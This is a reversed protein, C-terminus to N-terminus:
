KLWDSKLIEHLHPRQTADYALLQKLLTQSEPSLNSEEILFQFSPQSKSTSVKNGKEPSQENNARHQRLTHRWFATCIPAHGAVM